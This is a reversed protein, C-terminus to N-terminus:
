RQSIGISSGMGDEDNVSSGWPFFCWLLVEHFVESYFFEDYLFGM